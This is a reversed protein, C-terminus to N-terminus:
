ASLSGILGAAPALGAGGRVRLRIMGLACVLRGGSVLGTVCSVAVVLSADAGSLGVRRTKGDGSLMWTHAAQSWTRGASSLLATAIQWVGLGDRETHNGACPM